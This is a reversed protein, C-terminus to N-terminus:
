NAEDPHTPTALECLTHWGEVGVRSHLITVHCRLDRGSFEFVDGPMSEVRQSTLITFTGQATAHIVLTDDLVDCCRLGNRLLISVMGHGHWPSTTVPSISLLGETKGFPVM